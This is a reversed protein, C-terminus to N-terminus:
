GGGNQPKADLLRDVIRDTETVLHALQLSHGGQTAKMASVDSNLKANNQEIKTIRADNRKTEGCPSHRLDKKLTIQSRALAAISTMGTVMGTALLGIIQNETM